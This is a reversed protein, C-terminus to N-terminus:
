VLKKEKVLIKKGKCAIGFAAIKRIGRQRLERAYDKSEIQRLAASAISEMTEPKATSVKKFELIIGYNKKQHPILMIDYRGYGSEHNSKVEFIDSFTVLLGLVFLHYSREPEDKPLDFVSTSKSVFDQLMEHFREGDATLLAERLNEIRARGLSDEFISTILQRYLLKIEENPLVLTCFVAGLKREIRSFTTYGAFLLLSWIAKDNNEIGPFILAGDIEKIVPKNLLLYELESKVKEDSQAILEKILDNDSTNAWYPQIMGKHDICELLSWPNYITTKGCRYGNYWDKITTAKKILGTARLLSDVESVTFGFKDSFKEDLLTCVRLNNLGSFIGEKAARLIGTLVARELYSNDKLVATLLSRMFDIMEKYYGKNHAAHIPADYEDILVIVKRKYHKRLLRTLLFLSDAFDCKDPRSLIATYQSREFDSLNDKLLYSHRDFEAAIVSKIRKCADKWNRAKINKFTIFIVPFKGQLKRYGEHSWIKTKFFIHANSTESREFFYRLMSLNLTKGFRRPRPILVVKGNTRKLEDILLTKDVYQYGDEIIEKFDSIGIPLKPMNSRQLPESRM